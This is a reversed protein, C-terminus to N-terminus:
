ETVKWEQEYCPITVPFLNLYHSVELSFIMGLVARRFVCVCVCACVCVFM